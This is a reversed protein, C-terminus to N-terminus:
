AYKRCDWMYMKLNKKFKRKFYVQKSLSAKVNRTRPAILAFGLKHLLREVHRLSYNINFGKALHQKVERSTWGSSLENYRIPKNNALFHKLRSLANKNLLPINGPQKKTILGEIGNKKYRNIWYYAKTHPIDLM